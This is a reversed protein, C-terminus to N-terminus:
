QMYPTIILVAKFKYLTKKRETELYYSKNNRVAHGSEAM